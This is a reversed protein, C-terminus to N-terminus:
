GRFWRRSLGSNNITNSYKVTVEMLGSRTENKKRRKYVRQNKYKREPLNRRVSQTSKQFAWNQLIETIQMQLKQTHAACHM